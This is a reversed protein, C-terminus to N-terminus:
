PKPDIAELRYVGLLLKAPGKMCQFMWRSSGGQLFRIDTERLDELLIRQFM